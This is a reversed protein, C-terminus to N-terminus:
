FAGSDSFASTCKYPAVSRQVLFTHPVRVRKRAIASSEALNERSSLASTRHCVAILGGGHDCDSQIEFCCVEYRRRGIFAM